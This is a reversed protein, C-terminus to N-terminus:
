RAAEAIRVRRYEVAQGGVTLRLVDEDLRCEITGAADV